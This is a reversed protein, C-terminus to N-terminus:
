QKGAAQEHARGGTGRFGPIVHDLLQMGGSVAVIRSRVVDFNKPCTFLTGIRIRDRRFPSANSADACGWLAAEHCDVITFLLPMFNWVGAAFVERERHFLILFLDCRDDAIEAPVADQEFAGPLKGRSVTRFAAQPDVRGSGPLDRELDPHSIAVLVLIGEDDAGGDM